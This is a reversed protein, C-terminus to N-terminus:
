ADMSARTTGGNINRWARRDQVMGEKKSMDRKVCSGWIKRQEAGACIALTASNILLNLNQDMMWNLM